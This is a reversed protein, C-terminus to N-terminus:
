RLEVHLPGRVDLIPPTVGTSPRVVFAPFASVRPPNFVECASGAQRSGFTVIEGFDRDGRVRWGAGDGLAYPLRPQIPYGLLLPGTCDVSKYGTWVSIDQYSTVDPQGRETNIVWVTGDTAVTYPVLDTLVERGDADVYVLRPGSGAGPAGAPGTAGTPGVAGAEGQAGQPGSSGAAGPDGKPGRAGSDGVLGGSCGAVWVLCLTIILKM